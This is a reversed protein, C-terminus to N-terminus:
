VREGPSVRVVDELFDARFSFYYHPPKCKMRGFPACGGFVAAATNNVPAAASPSPVRLRWLGRTVKRIGHM